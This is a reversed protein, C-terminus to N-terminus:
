TWILTLVPSTAVNGAADTVVCVVQASGALTTPSDTFSPHVTTPNTVTIATVNGQIGATTSNVQTWQYSYPGVGGSVSVLSIGQGLSSAGLSTGKAASLTTVVLSVVLPNSTGTTVSFNSAPVISVNLPADDSRTVLKALRFTTGEARATYGSANTQIYRAVQALATPIDTIGPLGGANSTGNIDTAGGVYIHQFVNAAAAATGTVSVICDGICIDCYLGSVTVQIVYGNAGAPTATTTFIDVTGNVARAVYDPTSAYNNIQQAVAIATHAADTTWAVAVNLIEVGNVKVSSISGTSGALIQFSGMAANSSVAPTGASNFVGTLTGAATTKVIANTYSNSQQNPVNFVEVSGNGDDTATFTTTQNILAAFDTAIKTNTNLSALIVGSTFDRVLVGNYFCYTNNGYAGDNFSAVCFPLGGFSTSSLIGTMAGGQPSQCRVYTVGAPIGGPTAISGFTFITAIGPEAGFCGVPLTANTLADGVACNIGVWAKRKEIEGGQNVHANECTLLTGPTSTLESRRSDLGFKFNAINLYAM